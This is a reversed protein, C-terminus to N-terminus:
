PLCRVEIKTTKQDSTANLNIKKVAMLDVFLLNNTSDYSCCSVQACVFNRFGLPYSFYTKRSNGEKAVFYLMGNNNSLILEYNYNFYNLNPLTFSYDTPPISNIVFLFKFAIQEGLSRLILYERKELEAKFNSLLYFSLFALLIMFFSVYLMTELAIQAKKM